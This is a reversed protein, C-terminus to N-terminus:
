HALLRHFGAFFFHGGARFFLKRPNIFQATSVRNPNAPLLAWRARAVVFLMVFNFLAPAVGQRKEPRLGPSFLPDSGGKQRVRGRVIEHM